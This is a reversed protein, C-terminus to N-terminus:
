HTRCAPTTGLCAIYWTCLSRYFSQYLIVGSNIQGALIGNGHISPSSRHYSHPLYCVYIFRSYISGYTLYTDWCCGVAVVAMNGFGRLFSPKGGGVPAKRGKWRWALGPLGVEVYTGEIVFGRADRPYVFFFSSISRWMPSQTFKYPEHLVTVPDNKFHQAGYTHM